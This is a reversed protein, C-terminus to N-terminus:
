EDLLKVISDRHVFFMSLPAVRNMTFSCVGIVNGDADVLSSGSSGFSAPIYTQLLKTVQGSANKIVRTNSVKGTSYSYLMGLPSSVLYVNDGDKIPKKSVNLHDTTQTFFLPKLLALDSNTDVKYVVFIHSTSIKATEVDTDEYFAVDVFNGVETTMSDDDEVCHYATLVIESSVFAGTCFARYGSATHRVLSVTSRRLHEIFETNSSSQAQLTMKQSSCALLFVLSLLLGFLKLQKM